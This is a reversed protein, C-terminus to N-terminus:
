LTNTQRATRDPSKQLGKPTPIPIRLVYTESGPCVLLVQYKIVRATTSLGWHRYRSPGGPPPRKLIRACAPVRQKWPWTPILTKQQKRSDKQTMGQGSEGSSVNPSLWRTNLKRSSWGGRVRDNAESAGKSISRLPQDSSQRRLLRLILCVLEDCRFKSQSSTM